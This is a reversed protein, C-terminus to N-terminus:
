GPPPPCARTAPTPHPTGPAAPPRPPSPATGTCARPPHGRSTSRSAWAATIPRRTRSARDLHALIAADVAQMDPYPFQHAVGGLWLPTANPISRVLKEGHALPLLPDHTGHVVLTPVTLTELLGYRSRTAAAATQHQWAARLNIGRRERHSYLVLEALEEIDRESPEDGSDRLMMKAIYGKVLNHEGGLLRYKLLPLGKVLSRLLYGTKLSPLESDAVNPSTSLLTLSLVRGPHAIAIEQAIMGGLSLGVVHASAVELEDLVAIADEAMDTLLYPTKRSWDEMWDSLGTGRPDYRVVQYGADTLMRIFSRPWFLSDGGMGPNLLVIGRPVDKPAISEYWIRVSGSRAHGTRGSVVHSLDSKSVRAIIADTRSPLRPGGLLLFLALAVVLALLALIVSM